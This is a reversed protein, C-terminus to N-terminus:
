AHNVDGGLMVKVIEYQKDKFKKAKTITSLTYYHSYGVYRLMETFTYFEVTRNQINDRIIIRKCRNGKRTNEKSTIQQLNSYHNNLKNGDIHDIVLNTNIEGVFTEYVLKHILISKNYSLDVRKYGKKNISPKILKNTKNNKVEGYESILYNPYKNLKKWQIKKMKEEGINQTVM